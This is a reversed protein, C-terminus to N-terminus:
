LMQGSRPSAGALVARFEAALTSLADRLRTVDPGASLLSRSASPMV